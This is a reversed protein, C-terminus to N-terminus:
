ATRASPDPQLGVIYPSGQFKSLVSRRPSASFSVHCWGNNGYEFIVQDFAIGSGIVRQCVAFPAGYAPVLIDAAEGLTHQSNWAAGPIAANLAQSRYGSNIHVPADFLTRLRELGPVLYLRMHAILADSPTNDIGLRAATESAVLEELSFHESLQM